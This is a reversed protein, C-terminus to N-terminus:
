KREEPWYSEKRALDGCSSAIAQLSDALAPLGDHRARGAMWEFDYALRHVREQTRKTISRRKSM